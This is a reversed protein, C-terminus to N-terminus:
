TKKFVSSVKDAVNLGGGGTGAALRITIDVCGPKEVSKWGFTNTTSYSCIMITAPYLM